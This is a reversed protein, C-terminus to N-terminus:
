ARGKGALAFVEKWQEGIVDWSLNETVWTFAEEAKARAEDRHAHIHHLQHVFSAVNTAPRYLNNDMAGLCVFESVSAGSEAFYGREENEGIIEILSTNKPFLIPTKTAMAETSSLGWGEGLTTSVIVDSANYIDNVREITYGSHESFGDPLVYDELPKLGYFRAMENVNGGADNGNMHLYLLSEPLQKKFEAFAAMTRPIDKRAQNRNINTVVFKGDAHGAFFEKRFAKKQQRTQPKFAELNVGHYIVRIDSRGSHVLTERKGFHTYAVPFDAQEVSKEVWNSKLPADVPYYYIWKFAKKGMGALEKKTRAIHEGVQEMIFTDQLTFVIDFEGSGLMDLLRQRGFVDRYRVEHMHAVDIAPYIPFPWKHFDYPEGHHNIGIVTFDYLGTKQLQNLINHAVQAFGTACNFDSLWLVKKRESM